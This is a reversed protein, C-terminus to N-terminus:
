YIATAEGSPSLKVEAQPEVHAPQEDRYVDPVFFWGQEDGCALRIEQDNPSELLLRRCTFGSAARYSESASLTQDGVKEKVGVPLTAAKELIARESESQPTHRGGSETAAADLPTRADEPAKCGWLLTASLLVLTPFKM